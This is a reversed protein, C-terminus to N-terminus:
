KIITFKSLPYNTLCSKTAVTPHSSRMGNKNQSWKFIVSFVSSLLSQNAYHRAWVACCKQGKYNPPPSTYRFIKGKQSRRHASDKLVRAITMLFSVRALSKCFVFHCQIHEIEAGVGIGIVVDTLETVSKFSSGDFVRFVQLFSSGRIAARVKLQQSVSHFVFHDLQVKMGSAFCCGVKNTAPWLWAWNM